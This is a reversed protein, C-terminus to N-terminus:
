GNRNVLLGSRRIAEEQEKREWKLEKYYNVANFTEQVGISVAGAVGLTKLRLAYEIGKNTMDIKAQLHSNGTWNGINSSISRGIQKATDYLIAGKLISASSGEPRTPQSANPRSTEMAEDQPTKDEEGIVEFRLVKEM